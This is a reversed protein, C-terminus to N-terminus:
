KIYGFLSTKLMSAQSGSWDALHIEHPTSYPKRFVWLPHQWSQFCMACFGM